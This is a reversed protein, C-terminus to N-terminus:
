PEFGQPAVLLFRMVVPFVNPRPAIAGARKDRMGSFTGSFWRSPPRKSEAFARALAGAAEVLMADNAHSYTGLTLTIQSHGLIAMTTRAPVGEQHLVSGCTHRLAPFTV